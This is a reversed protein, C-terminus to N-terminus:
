NDTFLLHTDSCEHGFSIEKGIDDAHICIYVINFSHRSGVRRCQDGADIKIQRCQWYKKSTLM